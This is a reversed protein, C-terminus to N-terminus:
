MQISTPLMLREFDRLQYGCGVGYSYSSRGVKVNGYGGAYGHSGQFGLTGMVGKVVCVQSGNYVILLM